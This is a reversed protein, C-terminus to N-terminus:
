KVSILGSDSPYGTKPDLIHHYRKGSSDNFYRQYDGSTVVSKNVVSVVGILSSENRPHAIGIHWPTGDPKAGIVAVNGGFNTFASSVEYKKFVELVLDAAFGKGIGGLDISQGTRKLFVARTFPDLVLDTYDVLSLIRRIKSEEPPKLADRSSKWLSVLPGVTVDFCGHCCESFEVARSLVKYTERSVKECRIGASRNIRSIESNPIFRSLVGELRATEKEVAKLAEEAQEGFAKSYIVTSMVFYESQAIM